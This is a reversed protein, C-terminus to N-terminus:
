ARICLRSLSHWWNRFAAGQNWRHCLSELRHMGACPLQLRLHVRSSVGRRCSSGARKRRVFCQAVSSDVSDAKKTEAASTEHTCSPPCLSGGRCLRRSGPRHPTPAPGRAQGRLVPQFAQAALLFGIARLPSPNYPCSVDHRSYDPRRAGRLAWSAAGRPAEPCPPATGSGAGAGGGGTGGAGAGVGWLRYGPVSSWRAASERRHSEASAPRSSGGVPAHGPVAILDSPTRSSNSTGGKAM